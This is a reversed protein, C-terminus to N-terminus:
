CHQYQWLWYDCQGFVLVTAIFVRTFRSSKHGVLSLIDANHCVSNAVSTQWFPVVINLESLKRCIVWCKRWIRGSVARNLTRSIMTPLRIKSGNTNNNKTTPKIPMVNSLRWYKPFCHVADRTHEVAIGFLSLYWCCGFISLSHEALGLWCWLVM